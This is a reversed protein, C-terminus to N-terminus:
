YSSEELKKPNLSLPATGLYMLISDTWAKDRLTSEDWNRPMNIERSLHHVICVNEPLSKEDGDIEAVFCLCKKYNSPWPIM